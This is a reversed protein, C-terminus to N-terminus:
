FRWITLYYKGTTMLVRWGGCNFLWDLAALAIDPAFDTM